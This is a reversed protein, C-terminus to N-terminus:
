WRESNNRGYRSGTNWATNSSKHIYQGRGRAQQQPSAASFPQGQRWAPSANSTPSTQWSYRDTNQWGSWSNDSPATNLQKRPRWNLSSASTSTSSSPSFRNGASHAYSKFAPAPGTQISSNYFKGRGVGWGTGAFKCIVEPNKKNPSSKQVHSQNVMVRSPTSGNDEHWLERKVIDAESITKDPINVGESLHRKPVYDLPLKYFACLADQDEEYLHMFGTLGDSLMDNIKICDNHTSPTCNKYVSSIQEGLGSSSAVFM